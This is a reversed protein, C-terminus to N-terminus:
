QEQEQAATKAAYDASKPTVHHTRVCVCKCACQLKGAQVSLNYFLLCRVMSNIFQHELYRIIDRYFM